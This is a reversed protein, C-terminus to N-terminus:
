YFESASKQRKQLFWVLVALVVYYGFFWMWPVHNISALAWPQSFIDLIKVFYMVLVWCPAALIWGLATSFVGVVSITFGLITLAQVVPLALVNTIPAILSVRGFNYAIIPLTIIQAALTISILDRLTKVNEKTVMKLFGDILPKLHIIGLSALFSLQFGVDYMLLLPNQLLMLVGAMVLVRSGTNQRGLKQALLAICGMIGARIASAPFGILVIYAWILLVAVYFAQGRWFGLALLCVVAVSILIVINSGSVATVHSLGTANFKDKLDKPMNDDNGFVMGQLILNQPASFNANLSNELRTKAWLINEYAYSFVTYDHKKSVLEIKPFDMLSYIGEKALYNKYSFDESVSPTELKGVVRVKDLFAYKENNGYNGLTVLVDAKINFMKDNVLLKQTTITLKQSRERVDPERSISGVLTVKDAGDNFKKLPANDIYFQSVGFRLIGLVLVLVCFGLVLFGNKNILFAGLIIALGM